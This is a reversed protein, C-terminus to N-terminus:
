FSTVAEIPQPPYIRGMKPPMSNYVFDIDLSGLNILRHRAFGNFVGRVLVNEMEMTMGFVAVPAGAPVKALEKGFALPSFVLRRSDAAQAQVLPVIWPFGDDGVYALFKLADLRNFLNESWPNLVTDHPGTKAATKATKTLLAAPIIAALPLAQGGTHSVLDMYYVTHIGFYSNYRFMPQENYMVYDEGETATATFTAKGRWVRRDLTLVLFATHPNERVYRKSLGETFQGWIVQTPTKAQLSTILSLHPLGDPTVTALLGVKEAPAFIRMEEPTFQTLEKM